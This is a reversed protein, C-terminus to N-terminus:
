AIAAAPGPRAAASDNDERSDHGPAPRAGAAPQAAMRQVHVSGPPLSGALALLHEHHTLLVVQTHRSLDLLAHMAALARADDFSQLIDDGLFPLPPRAAVHDGISVLRLALFLQDQTGESLEAVVRPEAPHARELAVLRPEGREDPRLAVGSYAGATLTRFATGIRQVLPTDGAAEVAALGQDLLAAAVAAVLADDLVQSLSAAAAAEDHAAQVAAADGADLALDHELRAARAAAEQARALAGEQDRRAQGAAEQVEPGEARAEARLEAPTLGDSAQLLAARLRAQEAEQAARAEALAIRARAGAVDEAGADRLVAALTESAVAQGAEATAVRRDLDQVAALLGDRVAAGAAAADLRRRLGHLAADPAAGALDPALLAAAATAQGAFGAIRDGMQSVRLQMEAAERAEGELRDLLVLADALTDPAEDAGRGLKAAAAAWEARWADQRVLLTAQEREAALLAERAARQQADAVARAERAEAAARVALDAARLLAPLDADGPVPATGGPAAHSNLLTELQVAWAAHQGRLADHAAAAARAAAAADLAAARRALIDRAAALPAAGPLGLPRAAEAWAAAAVDHGARAAREADLVADREAEAAVLDRRLLAAREVAEAEAVCRDAAHDAAAAAQEYALPLPTGGAWAAIADAGPPDATFAQRFVLHWGADRHRRAAAVAAEDPLDAAASAAEAAREARARAAATRAGADRLARAATGAAGDLAELLALPPPAMAALAACDGTWGPVAALAAAAAADATAAALGAAALRPGPAGEARIDAALAALPAADPADPLVGSGAQARLEALRGPLGALGAALETHQKALRRGAARAPSPPVLAAADQWPRGDEGLGHLTAAVAHALRDLEARCGPLDRAAQAAVGAERELAEVQAAHAILREDPREAAARQATEDRRARLGALVLDARDREAVADGLRTALGPPLVPAGPHAEMWAAIGDLGDLFSATRRVRELRRLAQSAGAEAARASDLAARADDLAAEQRARDNPHLSGDRLRKRAGTWTDLAAYFPRSAVRREPAREDRERLLTGRLETASRVGGAGSLLADALAGGTALLRRGGERLGATDLAFLRELGARDMGGLLRDLVAPPLPAGADDLLTNGSGKRRGFRVPGDPGVAEARLRMAPYGFRFGMPTQGPVGFLLDAFAQRLVSKGTGNPAAVLNIVGPRPDLALSLSELNGYKEIHFATLRM